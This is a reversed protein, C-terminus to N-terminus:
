KLTTISDFVFSFSLLAHYKRTRCIMHNRAERTQQGFPSKKGGLLELLIWGSRWPDNQSRKGGLEYRIESAASDQPSM